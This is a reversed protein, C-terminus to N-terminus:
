TGQSLRYKRYSSRPTSELTLPMDDPQVDEDGDLALHLVCAGALVPSLVRVTVRYSDNLSASWRHTLFPPYRTVKVM